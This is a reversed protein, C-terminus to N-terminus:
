LSVDGELRCIRQGGYTVVKFGAAEAAAVLCIGFPQNSRLRLGIKEGDVEVEEVAFGAPALTARQFRQFM